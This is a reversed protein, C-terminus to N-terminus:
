RLRRRQRFGPVARGSQLPGGGPSEERRYVPSRWCFCLLSRSRFRFRFRSRISFCVAFICIELFLSLSLPNFFLVDLFSRFRFRSSFCFAFICFELSLSLSLPNFFCFAFFVFISFSRFPVRILFCFALIGFNLFSRSRSRSCSLSSALLIHPPPPIMKLGYRHHFM